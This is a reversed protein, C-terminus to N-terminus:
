TNVRDTATRGPSKKIEQQREERNQRAERQQEEWAIRMERIDEDDAGVLLTPGVLMALTAALIILTEM